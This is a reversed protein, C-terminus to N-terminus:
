TQFMRGSCWTTIIGTVIRDFVLLSVGFMCWCYGFRGWLISGCTWSSMNVLWWGEGGEWRASLRLYLTVWDHNNQNARTVFAWNQTRLKACHWWSQGSFRTWVSVFLKDPLPLAGPQFWTEMNKHFVVLVIAITTMITVTDVRSILIMWGIWHIFWNSDFDRAM